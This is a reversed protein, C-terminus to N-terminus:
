TQKQGASGVSTEVRGGDGPRPRPLDTDELPRLLLISQEREVQLVQVELILSAEATLGLTVGDAPGSGAPDLDETLTVCRVCRLDPTGSIRVGIEGEYPPESLVVCVDGDCVSATTPPADTHSTQSRLAVTGKM